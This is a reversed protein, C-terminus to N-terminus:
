QWSGGRPGGQRRRPWAVGGGGGVQGFFEFMGKEVQDGREVVVVSDVEEGLGEEEGELKGEGPGGAEAEERLAKARVKQVIEGGKGGKGVRGRVFKRDSDRIFLGLEKSLEDHAEMRSASEGEERVVELVEKAVDRTERIGLMEM